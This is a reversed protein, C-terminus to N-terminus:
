AKSSRSASESLTNRTRSAGQHDVPDDADGTGEAEPWAAEPWLKASPLLASGIAQEETPKPM